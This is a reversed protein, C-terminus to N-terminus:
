FGEVANLEPAYTPLREVRIRSHRRLWARVLTADHSGLRDWLLIIRGRVQRARHRLFHAAEEANMAGRHFKLLLRARRSRLRYAM